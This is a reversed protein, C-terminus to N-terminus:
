IYFQDFNTQILGLVVCLGPVMPDPGMMVKLHTKIGKQRSDPAHTIKGVDMNNRQRLSGVM